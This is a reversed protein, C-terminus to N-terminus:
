VVQGSTTNMGCGTGRRTGRGREAVRARRGEAVGEAAGARLEQAIKGPDVHDEKSPICRVRGRLGGRTQSGDVCHRKIDVLDSGPSSNSSKKVQSATIQDPNFEM